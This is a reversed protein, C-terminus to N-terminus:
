HLILVIAASRRPTLSASAAMM